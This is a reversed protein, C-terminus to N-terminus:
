YIITPRPHLRRVLDTQMIRHSGKGERVRGSPRVRYLSVFEDFKLPDGPTVRHYEKADAVVVDFDGSARVEHMKDESTFHVWLARAAMDLDPTWTVPVLDFPEGQYFLRAM